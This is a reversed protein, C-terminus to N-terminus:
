DHNLVKLDTIVATLLGSGGISRKSPIELLIPKIGTSCGIYCTHILGTRDHYGKFAEYGAKYTLQVRGQNIYANYLAHKIYDTTGADFRIDEFKAMM